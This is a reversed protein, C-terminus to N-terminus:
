SWRVFCSIGARTEARPLGVCYVEFQRAVGVLRWECAQVGTAAVPMVIEGPGACGELRTLFSRRGPDQVSTEPSARAKRVKLYVQVSSGSGCQRDIGVISATGNKGPNDQQSNSSSSFSSSSPRHHTIVSLDLVRTSVQSESHPCPTLQPFAVSVNHFSVASRDDKCADLILFRM